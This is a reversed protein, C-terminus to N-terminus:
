PAGRSSSLQAEDPFFIRYARQYVFLKRVPFDGNWFPYDVHVRHGCTSPLSNFNITGRKESRGPLQAQQAVPFQDQTFPLRLGTCSGSPKVVMEMANTPVQSITVGMGMAGWINEHIYISIHYKPWGQIFVEASWDKATQSTTNALWSINKCLM